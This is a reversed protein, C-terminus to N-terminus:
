TFDLTSLVVLSDNRTVDHVDHTLVWAEELRVPLEELRNDVLQKLKYVFTM